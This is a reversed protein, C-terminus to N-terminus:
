RPPSAPSATIPTPTRGPTPTSRPRRRSTACRAITRSTTAKRSTSPPPAGDGNIKAEPPLSGDNYYLARWDPAPRASGQPGVWRGDYNFFECPDANEGAHKRFTKMFGASLGSDFPVWAPNQRRVARLYNERMTLSPAAKPTTPM